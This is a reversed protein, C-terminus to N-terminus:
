RSDFQELTVLVDPYRRRGEFWAEGSRRLPGRLVATLFAAPVALVLGVLAGGLARDFGGDIWGGVVLVPFTVFVLLVWMLPLVVGAVSAITATAAGARAREHARTLGRQDPWDLRRLEGLYRGPPVEVQTTEPPTSGELADLDALWEVSAFWLRGSPISLQFGEAPAAADLFERPAEEGIFLVWVNEGEVGTAASADPALVLEGAEVARTLEDQSQLSGDLAAPDFLVVATEDSDASLDFRM